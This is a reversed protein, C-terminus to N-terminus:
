QKIRLDINNQADETPERYTLTAASALQSFNPYLGAWAGRHLPWLCKYVYSYYAM